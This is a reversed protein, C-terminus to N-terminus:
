RVAFAALAHPGCEIRGALVRSRAMMVKAALTKAVLAKAVRVQGDGLMPVTPEPGSRM